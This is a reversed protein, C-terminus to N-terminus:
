CIAKEPSAILIPHTADIWVQEIGHPYKDAGLYRYNFQGLPTDFEKDRKPTVSTIIEVREPILGHYSLAYELSVCSPGYILNALIEKCIPVLNYEPGFTYLGKKVRIIIGAKILENIKQRVGSYSSLADVLHTYDFEEYPITKRLQFANMKTM